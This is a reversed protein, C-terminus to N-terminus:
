KAGCTEFHGEHRVHICPQAAVCYEHRRDCSRQARFSSTRTPERGVDCDNPSQDETYALTPVCEVVEAHRVRGQEVRWRGNPEAGMRRSTSSGDARSLARLITNRGGCADRQWLSTRVPAHCGHVQGQRVLPEGVVSTRRSRHLRLCRGRDFPAMSIMLAMGRQILVRRALTRPAAATVAAPATATPVSRHFRVVLLLTM